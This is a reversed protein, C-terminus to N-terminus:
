AATRRRSRRRVPPPTDVVEDLVREDLDFADCAPLPTNLANAVEDDTAGDSVGGGVPSSPPAPTQSSGDDVWLFTAGTAADTGPDILPTNNSQFFAEIGPPAPEESIVATTGLGLELDVGLDRAENLNLGTTILQEFDTLSQEYNGFLEAKIADLRAQAATFAREVVEMRDTQAEMERCRAEGDHVARPKFPKPNACIVQVMRGLGVKVAPLGELGGTSGIVEATRVARCLEPFEEEIRDM